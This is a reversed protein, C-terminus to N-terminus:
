QHKGDELITKTAEHVIALADEVAGIPLDLDLM